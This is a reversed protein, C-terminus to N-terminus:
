KERAFTMTWNTEWNKGADASFAQEFYSSDPTIKSFSNQVFIQRGSFDEIDLFEGRGDKFEGVIPVGIIGDRSSAWSITWQKAEPNYLRLGVGDLHGSPGDLKFEAVSARGNWVPSVDGSGKWDTWKSNGSLPNTFRKVIVAWRGINFDFGRDRDEASLSPAVPEASTRTVDAIWNAEWTKGRDASFAQEFHYATPTVDSFLHRVLIIKGDLTEQDYFEGHGDAKFEGISPPQTLVGQSANSWYLRWQRAEPNYLRLTLGQLHGAPTTLEVEELNGRGNWIKRVVVTGEGEVWSTSGTLPKQLRRVHSKWTGIVFDFDHQGDRLASASQAPPAGAATSGLAAMVTAVTFGVYCAAKM